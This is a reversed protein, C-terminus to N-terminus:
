NHMTFLNCYMFFRINLGAFKLLQRIHIQTAINQSATDPVALANGLKARWVPMAQVM